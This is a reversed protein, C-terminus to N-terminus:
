LKKEKDKKIKKDPKPVPIRHRPTKHFEEVAKNLEDEHTKNKIEEM